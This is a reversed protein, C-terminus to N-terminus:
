VMDLSYKAVSKGNHTKIMTTIIKHGEKKLNLIRASLRFCDFMMLADIATLTKGEQLYSLIEQNQSKSM